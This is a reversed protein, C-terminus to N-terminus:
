MKGKGFKNVLKDYDDHKIFKYVYMDSKENWARLAPVGGKVNRNKMKVVEIDDNKAKFKKGTAVNYFEM